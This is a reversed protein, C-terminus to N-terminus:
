GLTNELGGPMFPVVLNRPTGRGHAAALLQLSTETLPDPVEV